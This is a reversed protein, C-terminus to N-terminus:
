KKNKKKIPMEDESDDNIGFLDFIYQKILKKDFLIHNVKYKTFLQLEDTSLIHNHIILPITKSISTTFIQSAHRGFFKYSSDKINVIEKQSLKNSVKHSVCLVVSNYELLVNVINEQGSFNKLIFYNDYVFIDTGKFIDYLTEYIFDAQDNTDTQSIETLKVDNQLNENETINQDVNFDNFRFSPAVYKLIKTHFSDKAILKQIILSDTKKRMISGLDCNKDALFIKDNKNLIKIYKKLIQRFDNCLNVIIEDKIKTGCEDRVWISEYKVIFHLRQIDTEWISNSEPDHKHRCYKIIEGIFERLTKNTHHSIIIEAYQIISWNSNLENKATESETRDSDDDNTVNTNYDVSCCEDSSSDYDFDTKGDYEIKKLDSGFYEISQAIEKRNLKRLPPASKLHTNAYKIMSMSKHATKANIVNAQTANETARANSELVNVLKELVNNSAIINSSFNTNQANNIDNNLRKCNYNKHKYLGSHYVFIAGCADCKYKPKKPKSSILEKSETMNTTHKKTLKHQDFHSKKNTHFNCLNCSYKM